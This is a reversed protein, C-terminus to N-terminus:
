CKRLPFFIKDLADLRAETEPDPELYEGRSLREILRATSAAVEAPDWAQANLREELKALRQRITM